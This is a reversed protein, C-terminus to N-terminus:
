QGYRSMQGALATRHCDATARTRRDPRDAKVEPVREYGNAPIGAIATEAEAATTAGATSRPQVSVSAAVIQAARRRPATAWSRRM